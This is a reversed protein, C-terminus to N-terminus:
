TQMYGPKLTEIAALVADHLRGNTVVIGRNAELKAGHTFDLKRGAIDTVSGGAQRVVLVGAAHDWINEVYDAGAPMRLYIDAEGRAVVAYKVQSDMRVPPQTISLLEALKQSDGHSSHGSEFSECFRAASTASTESVRVPTADGDGHLPRVMAPQGSVATFIAGVGSGPAMPLNPCALAAAVPEGGVILALAIAYQQKRLFGKTGDIPDLTWFRDSMSRAGGRDIWRCVGGVEACPEIRKVQEVVQNLLEMQDCQRLATSDEEAIIPDGAFVEGLARCILAQSGFDAVTVPSQDAKTMAPPIGRAVNASLMAARRVAEVAAKLEHEYIDRM